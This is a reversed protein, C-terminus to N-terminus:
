AEDEVKLIDNSSTGIMRLYTLAMLIMVKRSKNISADIELMSELRVITREITEKNKPLM